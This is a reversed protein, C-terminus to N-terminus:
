SHLVRQGAAGDRDLMREIAAFVPTGKLVSRLHKSSDGVLMVAPASDIVAAAADDAQARTLVMLPEVRVGIREGWVVADDILAQPQEFADATPMVVVHGRPALVRSDLDDNANFPGGGQLVILGTM